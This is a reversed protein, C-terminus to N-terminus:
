SEDDAGPERLYSKCTFDWAVVVQRLGCLLFQPHHTGCSYACHKCMM